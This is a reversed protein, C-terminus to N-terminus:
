KCAPTPPLLLAFITLANFFSVMGLRVWLARKWATKMFDEPYEL